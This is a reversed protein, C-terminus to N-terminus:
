RHCAECEKKLPKYIVVFARDKLQLSFHCKECLVKEHAGELKFSSDRNHVFTLERWLTAHHCKECRGQGKKGFQDHHVDPHCDACRFALPRYRIFEAVARASKDIGSAAHKEQPHCKVCAVKQHAGALAFRAANHDFKTAYWGENKHCIACDGKVLREAFQGAHVDQHCKQCRQDPLVFLLKNTFQGAAQRVHCQSCPTALHAGLLPFSIKQHEALTFQSPVFGEVSHCSECRGKDVRRALQGAHADAHCDRCARHLLKKKFDGDVHCKECAVNRHRGRLPFDTMEHNFSGGRINKWGEVSHCKICANGFSGRHPDQHCPICNAFQLGTYQVFAPLRENGMKEPAPKEHHCKTCAVNQHRGTLVFQARDHSFKEAPKWGALDHCHECASGLQGRHEDAHCSSCQQSLGLFTKNLRVNSDGSFKERINEPQHCNRCAAQAHKGELMYGAQKHDFNAEGKEWHILEFTEGHHEGHCSACLKAPDGSGSAQLPTIGFHYGRKAQLREAIATHCKLCKANSIQQGIEHCSLCQMLGELPAHAKTLAGPSIQAFVASPRLAVFACSLVIVARIFPAACGTLAFKKRGSQDFV